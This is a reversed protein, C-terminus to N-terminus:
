RAYNEVVAKEWAGREFSISSPNAYKHLGGRAKKKISSVSYKAQVFLVFNLVETLGIEPLETTLMMIKEQTSM